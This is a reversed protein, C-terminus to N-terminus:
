SISYNAPLLGVPKRLDYKHGGGYEMDGVSESYRKASQLSTKFNHNFFSQFTFFQSM